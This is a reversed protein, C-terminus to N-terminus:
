HLIWHKKKIKATKAMTEIARGFNDRLLFLIIKQFYSIFLRAAFIRNFEWISM